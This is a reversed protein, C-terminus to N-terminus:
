FIFTFNKKQTQVAKAVPRVGVLFQKRHAQWTLVNRYVRQPHMINWTVEASELACRKAAREHAVALGYRSFPSRWSRVPPYREEEPSWRSQCGRKRSAEHARIRYRQENGVCNGAAGTEAIAGALSMHHANILQIRV